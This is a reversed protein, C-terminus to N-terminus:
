FTYGVELRASGVDYNDTNDLDLWTHYYGLRVFADFNLEWRLGAGMNYSFSTDSYTEVFGDCVYGWWPDWWCGVYGPSSAINSDLTTWGLGGQIFPTFAKDSFHYVGNFHTSYMSLDHQIIVDQEGLTDSVLRADYDQLVADFTVNFLLNDSYHYGLSIGWGIGSDINVVSGQEGSISGSDTYSLALSGEWKGVRYSQRQAQSYSNFSCLVMSTITLLILCYRM